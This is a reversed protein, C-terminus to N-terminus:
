LPLRVAEGSMASRYAAEVVELDKRGEYGNVPSDKGTQIWEVFEGCEVAFGDHHRHGSLNIRVEAEEPQVGEIRRSYVALTQNGESIISGDTGYVAFRPGPGPPSTAWSTVLSGVIGSDFKVSLMATDEGELFIEPSVSDALM